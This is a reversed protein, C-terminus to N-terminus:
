CVRVATARSAAPVGAVEAATLTVTSLAGGVTESVAGVAPRDILPVMVTEAEAESLTPTTPTCNLSSPDLRPASTVVAGYATEQFVVVAVLAACVRVATARSAAPFVAVEAATLTVTSLAGGVTESVAGVAPRDILPVMVTEAEAESLTPTTPTCNLSSPALRPASTVVAGYATEQFVGVAVLPACVRVATARSAAPFVAVEAATLTVTSLAGGVAESVAGTAPVFTAPVIVTEALAVSLTPTTPTCNLSSPALRPASSVVTGYEREHFVVSTAPPEWLRIATARSAAPFVAGELATLTVTSLAGGSRLLTALVFREDLAAVM